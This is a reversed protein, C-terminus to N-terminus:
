SRTKRSIELLLYKESSVPWDGRYKPLVPRTMAAPEQSERDNVLRNSDMRSARFAAPAFKSGDPEVRHEVAAHPQTEKRRLASAIPTLCLRFTRVSIRCM